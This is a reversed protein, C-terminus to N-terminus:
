RVVPEPLVPWPPNPTGCDLSPRGSDLYRFVMGAARAPLANLHLRLQALHARSLFTGLDDPHRDYRWVAFPRTPDGRTEGARVVGKSNFDLRRASFTVTRYDEPGLVHNLRSGM